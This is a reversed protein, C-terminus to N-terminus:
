EYAADAVEQLTTPDTWFGSASTKELTELLEYQKASLPM